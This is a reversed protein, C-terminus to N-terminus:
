TSPMAPAANDLPAPSQGTLGFERALDHIINDVEQSLKYVADENFAQWSPGGVHRRDPDAILATLDKDLRLLRDYYLQKLKEYTEQSCLRLSKSIEARVKSLLTGAEDLYQKTAKQYQDGLNFQHYYSVAIAMLQYTWLLEALQELFLVQAELVKSQRSLDAEFIKQKQQRLDDEVRQRASKRDDIFRFVLPILAATILVLILNEVFASLSEM